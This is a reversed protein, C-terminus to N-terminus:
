ARAQMGDLLGNMYGLMESQEPEDMAAITELINLLREERHAQDRSRTISPYLMDIIQAEADSPTDDESDAGGNNTPNSGLAV